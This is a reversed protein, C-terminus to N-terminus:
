GFVHAVFLLFPLFIVFAKILERFEDGNDAARLYAIGLLVFLWESIDWVHWLPLQELSSDALIMIVANVVM